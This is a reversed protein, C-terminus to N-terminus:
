TQRRDFGVLLPTFTNRTGAGEKSENDISWSLKAAIMGIGDHQNKRICINHTTALYCVIHNSKVFSRSRNPSDKHSGQVHQQM